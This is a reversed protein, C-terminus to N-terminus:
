SIVKRTGTSFFASVTPNLIASGLSVGIAETSTCVIGPQVCVWFVAFSAVGMWVSSPSMVSATDSISQFACPPWPRSGPSNPANVIMAPWSGSAGVSVNL